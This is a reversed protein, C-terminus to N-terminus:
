AFNNSIQEAKQKNLEFGLGRKRGITINKIIVLLTKVRKIVRKRSKNNYNKREDSFHKTDSKKTLM